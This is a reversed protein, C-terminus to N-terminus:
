GRCCRNLRKISRRCSVVVDVVSFVVSSLLYTCINNQQLWALTVISQGEATQNDVYRQCNANVNGQGFLEISIRILGTLFLVFLIFSGILVIGPILQRSSVLYIILLCFCVGLAGTVVWFPM